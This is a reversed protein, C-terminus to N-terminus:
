KDRHGEEVNGAGEERFRGRGKRRMELRERTEIARRLM